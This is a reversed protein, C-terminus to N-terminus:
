LPLTQARMMEPTLDALAVSPQTRMYELLAKVEPALM